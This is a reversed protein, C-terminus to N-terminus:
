SFKWDRINELGSDDNYKCVDLKREVCSDREYLRSERFVYFEEGSIVRTM